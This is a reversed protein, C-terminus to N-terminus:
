AAQRDIGGLFQGPLPRAFEKARLMRIHLRVAATRCVHGHVERNELGAVRNERHREVLAAMERVTRRHVKGAFEVVDHRVGDVFRGLHEVIVRQLALRRFHLRLDQKGTCARIRSPDVEATDALYAVLDAAQHHHVHGMDRPKDGASLM